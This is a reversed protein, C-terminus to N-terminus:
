AMMLCSAWWTLFKVIFTSDLEDNNSLSHNSCYHIIAHQVNIVCYQLVNTSIQDMSNPIAPVFLLWLVQVWETPFSHVFNHPFSWMWVPSAYFKFPRLTSSDVSPICQHHVVTLICHIFITPHNHKTATLDAWLYSFTFQPTLVTLELLAGFLCDIIFAFWCWLWCLHRTNPHHPFWVEYSLM